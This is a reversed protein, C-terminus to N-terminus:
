DLLSITVSKRITAFKTNFYNVFTLRIQNQLYESGSQIRSRILISKFLRIRIWFVKPEM